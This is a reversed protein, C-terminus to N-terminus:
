IVNTGGPAVKVIDKRVRRCYHLRVVLLSFNDPSHTSLSTKQSLYGCYSTCPTFLVIAHLALPVLHHMTSPPISVPAVVSACLM